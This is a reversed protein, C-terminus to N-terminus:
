KIVPLTEFQHFPPPSSLTWELTTAGEGWYNDEVRRKGAFSVILNLFFILMGAGMIAYGISAINNWYAYMEPYDPIRRPMGDAGLFHMPFFMVNVGVFFVWFHLKGLFENYPKGTMKGFWYYFGAFIAFVAGLSLVYHFHAVVYYTDHFYTDVGGNALIVGTVGGVTFMFIFGIAWLMPTPFSLSGGWMTAIWSFIKIGTPVAIIMTAATFYMKTNVDLGATFMHHAWVLFGIFGIAVMAYAMGLYGFVPKKSFTSIIQSVMGFGPLILIYVEPHGFFWFLHQYLVPDGGGDATFFHTGFNRDTLLMTIAGALVPLSLLLLFATVLVSWVFLPMKHITMGPARMNLITTIFNIAGLISSAGAIHLSLIAMDVAPGPHGATSLPPYVTWGTGAGNFGAPGEVFMSGCLLLFSPVLLWFSVNNMRPFAMDPAGIMIPVFWNGFGGIMAPMVTFFVMILGHGTIFVNWLHYSADLNGDTFWTLYQIGPAALELRMVGSIAGGITGAIVAFILYLTGIDKHNTSFLWREVFGPKHDAHDDHGAHGAAGVLASENAM